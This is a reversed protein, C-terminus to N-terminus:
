CGCRCRRSLCVPSPAWKRRYARRRITEVVRLQAFSLCPYVSVDGLFRRESSTLYRGYSMLTDTALNM